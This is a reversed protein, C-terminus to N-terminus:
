HAILVVFGCVCVIKTLEVTTQVVSDLNEIKYNKASVALVYLHYLSDFETKAKAKM